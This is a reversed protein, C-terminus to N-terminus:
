NAILIAINNENIIKNNWVFRYLGKKKAKHFIKLYQMNKNTIAFDINEWNFNKYELNIQLLESKKKKEGESIGWRTPWTINLVYNWNDEEITNTKIELANFFGFSLIQGAELNIEIIKNEKDNQIIEWKKFYAEWINKFDLFGFGVESNKGNFDKDEFYKVENSGAILAAIIKEKKFEDEINLSIKNIIGILLATTELNSNLINTGVLFPNINKNKIKPNKEQNKIVLITNEWFKFNLNENESAWVFLQQKNNQFWKKMDDEQQVNWWKNKFITWVVKVNNKYFNNSKQKFDDFNIFANLELEVNPSIIKILLELFYPNYKDLEKAYILIGIKRNKLNQDQAKTDFYNIAKLIKTKNLNILKNIEEIEQENKNIENYNSSSIFLLPFTIFSTLKLINLTKRKM